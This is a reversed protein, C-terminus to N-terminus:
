KPSVKDFPILALFLKFTDRKPSGLSQMDTTKDYVEEFHPHLWSFGEHGFGTITILAADDGSLILKHWPSLPPLAVFHRRM